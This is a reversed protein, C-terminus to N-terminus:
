KPDYFTFSAPDCMCASSNKLKCKYRATYNKDSDTYSGELKSCYSTALSINKLKRTAGVKECFEDCSKTIDFDDVSICESGTLFCEKNTEQIKKCLELDPNLVHCNAQCKQKGKSWRCADGNCKSKKIKSCKTESISDSIRRLEKSGFLAQKKKQIETNECTKKDEKLRCGDVKACVDTEEKRFGNTLIGCDFKCAKKFMRCNKSKGCNEKERLCLSDLYDYKGAENIQGGNLSIAHDYSKKELSASGLSVCANNGDSDFHWM